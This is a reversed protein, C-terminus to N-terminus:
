NIKRQSIQKTQLGARFLPGAGETKYPSINVRAGLNANNLEREKRIRKKQKGKQKESSKVDRSVEKRSESEWDETKNGGRFKGGKGGARPIGCWIVGERCQRGAHIDKKGRKEETSRAWPDRKGTKKKSAHTTTGVKRRGKMHVAAIRNSVRAESCKLTLLVGRGKEATNSERGAGKRLTRCASVGEKPSRRPRKRGYGRNRHQSRRAEVGRGVTNRQVPWLSGKM